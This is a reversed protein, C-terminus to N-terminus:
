LGATCRHGQALAPTTPHPCPARSCTWGGTGSRAGLVLLVPCLGASIDPCQCLGPSLLWGRAPHPQAATGPLLSSAPPHCCCAAQQLRRCSSSSTSPWVSSTRSTCSPSSPNLSRRTDGPAVRSWCPWGAGLGPPNPSRQHHLGRPGGPHGTGASLWRCQVSVSGSPFHRGM